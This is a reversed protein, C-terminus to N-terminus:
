LSVDSLMLNAAFVYEHGIDGEHEFISELAHWRGTIMTECGLEERFERMLASERTEGFEVCGGLARIGRIIGASDEVNGVLMQDDRWVLGLVKVRVVQAPKWTTM